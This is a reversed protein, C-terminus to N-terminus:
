VILFFRKHGTFKWSRYSPDNDRAVHIRRLPDARFRPSIVARLVDGPFGSSQSFNRPFLSSRSTCDAREIQVFVRWEYHIAGLHPSFRRRFPILASSRLSLANNYTPVRSYEIIFAALASATNPKCFRSTRIIIGSLADSDAIIVSCNNKRTIESELRISSYM